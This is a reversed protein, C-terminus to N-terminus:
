REEDDDKRKAEKERRAKEDKIWGRLIDEDLATFNDLVKKIAEEESLKQDYIYEMLTIRPGKRIPEKEQKRREKEQQEIMIEATRKFSGRRLEDIRWKNEKM